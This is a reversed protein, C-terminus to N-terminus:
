SGAEETHQSSGAPSCICAFHFVQKHVMSMRIVLRCRLISRACTLLGCFHPPGVQSPDAGPATPVTLRLRCLQGSAHGSM